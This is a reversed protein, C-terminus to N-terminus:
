VLGSSMRQCNSSTTCSSLSVVQGKELRLLIYKSKLVRIIGTHAETTGEVTLMECCYGFKIDKASRPKDLRMTHLLKTVASVCIFKDSEDLANLMYTVCSNDNEVITLQDSNVRSWHSTIHADVSQMTTRLLM